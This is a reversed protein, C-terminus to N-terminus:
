QTGLVKSKLMHECVGLATNLPVCSVRNVINSMSHFLGYIVLM